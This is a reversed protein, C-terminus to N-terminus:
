KKHKKHFNKREPLPLGAQRTVESIVKQTLGSISFHGNNSTLAEFDWERGRGEVKPLTKMGNTYDEISIYIRNPFMTVYEAIGYVVHWKYGTM